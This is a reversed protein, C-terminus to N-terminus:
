MRDKIFKTLTAKKKAEDINPFMKAEGFNKLREFYKVPMPNSENKWQHALVFFYLDYYEKLLTLNATPDYEEHDEHPQFVPCLTLLLLPYEDLVRREIFKDFENPKDDNSMLRVFFTGLGDIEIDRGFRQGTLVRM